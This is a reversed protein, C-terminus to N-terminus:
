QVAAPQCVLDSDEAVCPSQASSHLSLAVNLAKFTGILCPLLVLSQSRFANFGSLGKMLKPDVKRYATCVSGITTQLQTIPPTPMTIGRTTGGMLSYKLGGWALCGGGTFCIISAPRDLHHGASMGLKILLM